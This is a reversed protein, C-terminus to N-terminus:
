NGAPYDCFKGMRKRNTQDACIQARVDRVLVRTDVDAALGVFDKWDLARCDQAPIRAMDYWFKWGLAKGGSANGGVAEVEIFYVLRGKGSREILKATDLARTVECMRLAASRLIGEGSFGGDALLTILLQPDASTGLAEAKSVSSHGKKALQELQSASSSTATAVLTNSAVDVGSPSGMSTGPNSAQKRPESSKGGDDTGPGFVLASIVMALSLPALWKGAQIRTRFPPLPRILCIVLYLLALVAGLIMLLVFGM